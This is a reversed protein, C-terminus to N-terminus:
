ALEMDTCLLKLCTLHQSLISILNSTIEFSHVVVCVCVCFMVFKYDGIFRNYSPCSWFLDTAARLVVWLTPCCTPWNLRVANWTSSVSLTPLACPFLMLIVCTATCNRLMTWRSGRWRSLCAPWVALRCCVSVVWCCENMRWHKVLCFV